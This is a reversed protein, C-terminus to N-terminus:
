TSTTDRHGTSGNAHEPVSAFQQLPLSAQTFEVRTVPLKEIYRRHTRDSIAPFEKRLRQININTALAVLLNATGNGV